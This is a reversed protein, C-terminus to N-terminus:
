RSGPDAIPDGIGEDPAKYNLLFARRQEVFAKLGAIGGYFAEITDLKRTDSKVDTAILAQYHAVMPELKTWDLWREAIDRIYDLYRARLAPVALLRSRLPAFSDRRGVLPDLEIGGNRGVDRGGASGLGENVDHPILHFRGTADQYLNYDSSRTWYGDSNVM